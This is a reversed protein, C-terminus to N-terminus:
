ADRSTYIMVQVDEVTVLGEKVMPAIIQLAQAIKETSDVVEIKLPLDVYLVVITATKIRSHAGFGAVGRMVTAGAFDAEKLRELIAMYLSKGEWKDSEDIYISLRQSNQDLSL